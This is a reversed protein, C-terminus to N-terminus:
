NGEPAQPKQPDGEACCIHWARGEKGGVGAGQDLGRGGVTWPAATRGWCSVTGALSQWLPYPEWRGGRTRDASDPSLSLQKLSSLPSCEPRAGRQAEQEGALAVTKISLTPGWRDARSVIEPWMWSGSGNEERRILLDTHTRSGLQRDTPRGNGPIPPCPFPPCPYPVTGGEHM